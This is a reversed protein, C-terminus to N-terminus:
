KEEPLLILLGDEAKEEAEALLDESLAALFTREAGESLGRVQLPKFRGSAFPRRLARLLNLYDRNLRFEGCLLSTNIM